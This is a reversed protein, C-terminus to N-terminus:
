NKEWLPDDNTNFGMKARILAVTMALADTTRGDMTARGNRLGKEWFGYFSHVGFKPSHYEVM